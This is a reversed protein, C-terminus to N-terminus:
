GVDLDLLARGDEEYKRTVTGWVTVPVSARDMGRYAVSWRVIRGREGVFEDLLRGVLMGKLAGHVIVGPLDNALAYAEDYHIQYYDAVAAAWIVLRQTSMEEVLTIQQGEAVDDWTIQTM